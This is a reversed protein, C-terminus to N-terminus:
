REKYKSGVTHESDPVIYWFRNGAMKSLELAHLYITELDTSYRGSGRQNSYDSIEAIGFQFGGATPMWRIEGRVDKLAGGWARALVLKTGCATIDFLNDIFNVESHVDVCPM